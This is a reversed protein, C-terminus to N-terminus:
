FGCPGVSGGRYSAHLGGPGRERCVASTVSALVGTNMTGAPFAWGWFAGAAEGGRPEESAQEGELLGSWVCCDIGQGEQQSIQSQRGVGGGPLTGECGGGEPSLEEEQRLVSALSNRGPEEPFDFYFLLRTRQM